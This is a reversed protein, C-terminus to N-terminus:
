KRHYLILAVFVLVFAACFFINLKLDFVLMSLATAVMMASSIMFLRAINSSHKMIASMILGSFAQTIVIVWTYLSYGHFLNFAGPSGSAAAQSLWMGGNLLIGFIYLLINQLHISTQYQKKLIYETYVGALGSVFCYTTIMLLGKVTIHIVGASTIGQKAQLGGYSNSIGALALFGLAVWQLPSIPRKIILRYLFATSLIKLNGLVQYTAPDMQLQMHVAINNNFCYLLAPVAFPLAFKFSPMNFGKEQVEPIFLVISILLKSIEIVLVMSSSSFPIKGDVECLHVLITYSGYILTGICIMVRWLCLNVPKSPEALSSLENDKNITVHTHVSKKDAAMM